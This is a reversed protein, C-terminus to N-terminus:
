DSRRRRAFPRAGRGKGATRPMAAPAASGGRRRAHAAARTLDVVAFILYLTIILIDWIMPSTWNPYRVLEWVREPRGLDPIIQMAAVLVCAAASLVGIRALPKLSAAGSVEASSAMILGGASLGVFFAFTTIYLGWSVEDRMGTVILGQTLQYIWAGFAWLAILALIGIWIKATRSFHLGHASPHATGELTSM